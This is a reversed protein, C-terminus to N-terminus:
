FSVFVLMVRLGLNAYLGAVLDDLVIGLGGHLREAVNAPWPKWIDFLRFLLFGATLTGWSLPIWLMTLLFGAVEDIVVESPDVRNLLNHVVQSSWIAVLTMIMLVLANSLPSFIGSLVVLPVAALTGFTGSAFPMLGSGFWTGLILAAKGYPSTQRFVAAIGPHESETEPM